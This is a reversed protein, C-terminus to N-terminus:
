KCPEHPAGYAVGARPAASIVACQVGTHMSPAASALSFVDRRAWDCEEPDGRARTSPDVDGTCSSLCRADDTAHRHRHSGHRRVVRGSGEKRRAHGGLRQSPHRGGALEVPSSDGLYFRAPRVVPDGERPRSGVGTYSRRTSSAADRRGALREEAGSKSSGGRTAPRPPADCGRGVHGKSVPGPPAARPACVAEKRVVPSVRGVDDRRERRAIAREREYLGIIRPVPATLPTPSARAKVAGRARGREQRLSESRPPQRM